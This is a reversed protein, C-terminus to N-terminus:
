PTEASYALWRPAIGEDSLLMEGVALEQAASYTALRCSDLDHRLQILYQRTNDDRLTGGSKKRVEFDDATVQLLKEGAGLMAASRMLDGIVMSRRLYGWGESVRGLVNEMEVPADSFVVECPVDRTLGALRTVWIGPLSSPVLFGTIGQDSGNAGETWAPVLFTGAVCADVVLTATGSLVFGNGRRTAQVTVDGPVHASRSSGPAPEDLALAFLEEGDILRPLFASKQGATGAELISFGGVVVTSVFPGPFASRGLEECLVALSVLDMEGGGFQQPFALGLWGLGAIKRWLDPSYGLGGKEVSQLVSETCEKELFDRASARLLEHEENLLTKM